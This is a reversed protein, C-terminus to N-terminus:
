RPLCLIPFAPFSLHRSRLLNLPSGRLGTPPIRHPSGHFWGYFPTLREHCPSSVRFHFIRTGVFVSADSDRSGAVGIGNSKRRSNRERGGREFARRSVSSRLLSRLPIPRLLSSFQAASLPHGTCYRYGSVRPRLLLWPFLLIM